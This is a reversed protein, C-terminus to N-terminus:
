HEASSYGYYSDPRSGSRYPTSRSTFHACIICIHLQYTFAGKAAVLAKMEAAKSLLLEMGKPTMQEVSLFHQGVWTAPDDTLHAQLTAM